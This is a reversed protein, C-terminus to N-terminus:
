DFIKIVSAVNNQQDLYVHCQYDGSLGPTVYSLVGDKESFSIDQKNEFESMFSLVQDRNMGLHIKECARAFPTGVGSFVFFILYYVAVVLIVVSSVITILKSKIMYNLRM